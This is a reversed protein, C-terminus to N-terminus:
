GTLERQYEDALDPRTKWVHARADAESVFRDPQNTLLERAINTAKQIANAGKVVPQEPEPAPEVSLSAFADALDPRDRWVQARAAVISPYKEPAAKMLKEAERTAAEVVDSAKTFMTTMSEERYSETRDQSVKTIAILALGRVDLVGVREERALKEINGPEAEWEAISAQVATTFEQLNETVADAGKGEFVVRAIAGELMDALLRIEALVKESLRARLTEAFEAKRIATLEAEELMVAEPM